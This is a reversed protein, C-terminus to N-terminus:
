GDAEEKNESDERVPKAALRWGARVMDYYCSYPFEVTRCRPVGHSVHAMYDGGYGSALFTGPMQFEVAAGLADGIALGLLASRQRDVGVRQVTM